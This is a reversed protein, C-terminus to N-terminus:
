QYSVLTLFQIGRNHIVLNKQIQIHPRRRLYFEQGQLNYYRDNSRSGLTELYGWPIAHQINAVDFHTYVTPSPQACYQLGHSRILSM